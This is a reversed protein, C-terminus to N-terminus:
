WDSALSCCMTSYMLSNGTIATFKAVSNAQAVSSLRSQPSLHAPTLLQLGQSPLQQLDDPVLEVALRVGLVPVDDAQGHGDQHVGVVEAALGLGGLEDRHGLATVLGPLLHGGTSPGSSSRGSHTLSALSSSRWCACPQHECSSSVQDPLTPRLRRATAQRSPDALPSPTAIRQLCFCHLYESNVHLATAVNQTRQTFRSLSSLPVYVQTYCRYMALRYPNM